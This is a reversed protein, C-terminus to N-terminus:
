KKDKKKEEKAVELPKLNYFLMVLSHKDISKAFKFGSDRADLSMSFDQTGEIPPCLDFVDFLSKKDLKIAMQLGLEKAEKTLIFKEM